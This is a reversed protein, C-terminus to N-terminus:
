AHYQPDLEAEGATVATVYASFKSWCDDCGVTRKVSFKPQVGALSFPAGDYYFRETGPQVHCRHCLETETESM